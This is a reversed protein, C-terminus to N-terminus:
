ITIRDGTQTNIDEGAQTLLYRTIAPAAITSSIAGYVTDVSYVITILRHIDVTLSLETLTSVGDTNVIVAAVALNLATQNKAGLLNFWDVGAALDFFCDGLFSLVNTKILQATAEKNQQYNNKGRGFTWDGHSDISRVIM